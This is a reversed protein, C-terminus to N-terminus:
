VSKVTRFSSRTQGLTNFLMDAIKLGEDLSRYNSTESNIPQVPHDDRSQTCSALLLMFVAFSLLKKIM